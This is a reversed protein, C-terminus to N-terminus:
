CRIKPDNTKIKNEPTPCIMAEHKLVEDSILWETCSEEKSLTNQRGAIQSIIFIIAWTKSAYAM